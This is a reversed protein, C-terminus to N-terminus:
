DHTRPAYKKIAPLVNMVIFNERKSEGNRTNANFAYM